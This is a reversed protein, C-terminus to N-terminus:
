RYINYWNWMVLRSPCSPSSPSSRSRVHDAMRTSTAPITGSDALLTECVLFVPGAFTWTAFHCRLRCRRTWDRSRCRSLPLGNASSDPSAVRYNSCRTTTSRSWASWWDFGPLRSVCRPHCRRRRSVWRRVHFCRCRSRYRYRPNRCDWARKSPRAARDAPGAAKSSRSDKNFGDRRPRTTHLYLFGLNKEGSNGRNEAPSSIPVTWDYTRYGQSNLPDRYSFSHRVYKQCPCKLYDLFVPLLDVSLKSVPLTQQSVNRAKYAHSVSHWESSHWYWTVLILTSTFIM